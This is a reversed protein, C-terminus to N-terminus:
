VVVETRNCQWPEELLMSTVPSKALAMINSMNYFLYHEYASDNDASNAYNALM